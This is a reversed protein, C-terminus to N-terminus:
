IGLESKWWAPLASETTGLTELWKREYEGLTSVATPGEALETPKIGIKTFFPRMRTVHGRWGQQRLFEATRASPPVYNLFLVLLADTDQQALTSYKRTAALVVRRLSLWQIVENETASFQSLSGIGEAIGRVGKGPKCGNPTVGSQFMQDFASFLLRWHESVASIVLDWRQSKRVTAYSHRIKDRCTDAFHSDLWSVSDPGDHAESYTDILRQTDATLVSIHSYRNEQKNKVCRLFINRVDHDGIDSPDYRMPIDGTFMEYLVLGLQYIDSKENVNKTDGNLQEPSMYVETGLRTGTRTLDANIKTLDKGFGLDAVKWVGDVRLINHPKIDRHVVGQQHFAHVGECVEMFIRLADAIAQRSEVGFRFDKLCHEACPMVLFSLGEHVGNDLIPMIHRHVVSQMLEVERAFRSQNAVEKKCIKLAVESGSELDLVKYVQAMGGTGLKSIVEYRDAVTDNCDLVDSEDSYM